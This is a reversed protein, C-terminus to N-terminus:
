LATKSWSWDKWVINVFHSITETKLGFNSRATILTYLTVVQLFAISFSFDSNCNFQIFNWFLDVWIATSNLGFRNFNNHSNTVYGSLNRPMTIERLFFFSPLNIAIQRTCSISRSENWWATQLNRQNQSKSTRLIYRM